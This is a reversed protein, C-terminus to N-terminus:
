IYRITACCFFNIPPVAAQSQFMRSHLATTSPRHHSLAMCTTNVQFPILLLLLLWTSSFLAAITHVTAMVRRGCQGHFQLCRNHAHWLLIISFGRTITRALPSGGPLSQPILEQGANSLAIGDDVHDLAEVVLVDDMDVAGDIGDSIRLQDAQFQGQGIQGLHLLSQLPHLLVVIGIRGFPHGQFFHHGDQEIVTCCPVGCQGLFECVITRM